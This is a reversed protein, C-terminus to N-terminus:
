GNEWGRAVIESPSLQSEAIGHFEQVRVPGIGDRVFRVGFDPAWQNILEPHHSIILMQGKKQDIADSAANLWPQIERLSIFNEPEDLVVTSGQSIIFHLIMYLCIICRQGDSLENFFFKASPVGERSFECMLLRINEGVSTLELFNFDDIASRLSEHLASDQKRNAQVLHRYWAAVNSLDPNPFLNEGEARSGMAFPNLRFCVLNGLWDKFRTLRTNDKRATITALASRNWDFPYTVKHEFRDNFLHVEGKAFEFIPKGDLHLMESAVRPRSPEGWPDIVLAYKYTAGDIVAELEFTQHPQTMWRTRHVLTDFDETKIGSIAIQRIFLLADLFSSKGSGNSGLILQRQAPKYEFNVFCKFNDIYIRSLM